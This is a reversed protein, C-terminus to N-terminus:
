MTSFPGEYELPYVVEYSWDTDTIGIQKAILVHDLLNEQKLVEMVVENAKRWDTIYFLMNAGAGMDGAFWEGLNKSVLAEDIQEEVKQRFNLFRLVDFTGMTSDPIIQIFMVDTAPTMKTVFGQGEYFSRLSDVTTEEKKFKRVSKLRQHTLTHKGFFVQGSQVLFGSDRRLIRRFEITDDNIKYFSELLRGDNNKFQTLRKETPHYTCGTMIGIGFVVIVRKKIRFQTTWFSWEPKTFSGSLWQLFIFTAKNKM